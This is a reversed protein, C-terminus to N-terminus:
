RNRGQNVKVKISIQSQFNNLQRRKLNCDIVFLKEYFENKFEKVNYHPEIGLERCVKYRHHGDLLIGDHNVILPAWLGDQKISEKLSKYPLSWEIRGIL